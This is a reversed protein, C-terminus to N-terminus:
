VPSTELLTLISVKLSLQNVGLAQIQQFLRVLVMRVLLNVTVPPRYALWGLIQWPEPSKHRSFLKLKQVKIFM